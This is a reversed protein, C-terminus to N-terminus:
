TIYDDLALVADLRWRLDTRELTRVLDETTSLSGQLLRQPPPVGLYEADGQPGALGSLDHEFVHVEAAELVEEVEQRHSSVLADFSTRFEDSMLTAPDPLAATHAGGDDDIWMGPVIVGSKRPTPM